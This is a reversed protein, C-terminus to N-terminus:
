LVPVPEPVVPGSVPAVGDSGFGFLVIGVVDDGLLVEDGLVTFEFVLVPVDVFVLPEVPAM